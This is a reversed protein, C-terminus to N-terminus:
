MEKLDRVAKTLLTIRKSLIKAPDVCASSMEPWWFGSGGADCWNEVHKLDADILIDNRSRILLQSSETSCMFTRNRSVSGFHRWVWIARDELQLSDYFSIFLYYDGGCIKYIEGMLLMQWPYAEMNKWFFDEEMIAKVGERPVNNMLYEPDYICEVKCPIKLDDYKTAFRGTIDGFVGYVNCFIRIPSKAPQSVLHPSPKAAVFKGHILDIDDYPITSKEYSLLM